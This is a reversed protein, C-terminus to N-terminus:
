VNNSRDWNFKEFELYYKVEEASNNNLDCEYGNKKNFVKHINDNSALYKTRIKDIVISVEKRKMTSYSNYRKIDDIYDSYSKSSKNNEQFNNLHAIDNRFQNLNNNSDISRKSLLQGIPKKTNYINGAFKEGQFIWSMFRAHFESNYKKIKSITTLKLLNMYFNYKNIGDSAEKHIASTKNVLEKNDKFIDSYLIRRNKNNMKAENYLEKYKGQILQRMKQYYVIRSMSEFQKHNDKSGMITDILDKNELLDDRSITKNFTNIEAIIENYYLKTEKMCHTHLDLSFKLTGNTYERILFKNNIIDVNKTKSEPKWLNVEISENNKNAKQYKVEDLSKFEVRSNKNFIKLLESEFKNHCNLNSNLDYNKIMLENKLIKILKEFESLYCEISTYFEENFRTVKQFAELFIKHEEKYKEKLSILLSKYKITNQLLESLIEVTANIGLHYISIIFDNSDKISNYDSFEFKKLKLELYRKNEDINCKDFDDNLNFEIKNDSLYEIFDQAILEIIQKEVMVVNGHCENMFQQKKELYNKTKDTNTAFGQSYIRNLLYKYCFKFEDNLDFFLKPEFCKFNKDNVILKFIKDFRPFILDKIHNLQLLDISKKFINNDIYKFTNNYEFQSVVYKSIKDVSSKPCYNKLSFANDDRIENQKDFNQYHITYNRLLYASIYLEKNSEFKTEGIDKKLDCLESAGLIDNKRDISSLFKYVTEYILNNLKNSYTDQIKALQLGIEKELNETLDLAKEKKMSNLQTNFTSLVRNEIKTKLKKHEFAKEIFDDELELDKSEVYKKIKRARGLVYNHVYKLVFKYENEKVILCSNNITDKMKEDFNKFTDQYHKRIDDFLTYKINNKGNPNKFEKYYTAKNDIIKVCLKSLDYAEIVVGIKNKLDNFTSIELIKNYNLSEIIDNRNSKSNKSTLGYRKMSRNYEKTLETYFENLKKSLKQKKHFNIISKALQIECEIARTGFRNILSKENHKLIKSISVSRSDRLAKDSIVEESEKTYKDIVNFYKDTFNNCIDEDVKEHKMTEKLFENHISNIDCIFNHRNVALQKENDYIESYKGGRKFYLKTKSKFDIKEELKKYSSMDKKYINKKKLINFEKNQSNGRTKLQIYFDNKDIVCRQNNEKLYFYRRNYKDYFLENEVGSVCYWKQKTIRMLDGWKLIKQYCLYDKFYIKM